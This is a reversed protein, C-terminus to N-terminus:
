DHIHLHLNDRNCSYNCNLERDKELINNFSTPRSNVACLIFYYLLLFIIALIRLFALHQQLTHFGADRGNILTVAGGYSEKV